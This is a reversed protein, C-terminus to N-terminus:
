RLRDRVILPVEDFLRLLGQEIVAKESATYDTWESHWVTGSVPAKTSVMCSKFRRGTHADFLVIEVNVFGQASSGFRSTQIGYGQMALAPESTGAALRRIVAVGDVGAVPPMPPAIGFMGPGGSRYAEPVNATSIVFRSSLGKQVAKSLAEDLFPSAQRRYVNDFATIGQHFRVMDKVGSVM